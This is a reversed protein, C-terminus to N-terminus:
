FDSSMLNSVWIKLTRTICIATIGKLVYVTYEIVDRPTELSCQGMNNNDNVYQVVQLVYENHSSNNLRTVQEVAYKLSQLTSLVSLVGVGGQSFGGGGSLGCFLGGVLM